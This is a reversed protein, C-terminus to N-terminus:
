KVKKMSLKGARIKTEVKNARLFDNLATFLTKAREISEKDGGKFLLGDEDTDHKPTWVRLENAGMWIYLSNPEEAWRIYAIIAEKVYAM